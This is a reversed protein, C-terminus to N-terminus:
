YFSIMLTSSHIILSELYSKLLILKSPVHYLPFFIQRQIKGGVGEM